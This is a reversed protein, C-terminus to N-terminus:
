YNELSNSEESSQRVSKRLFQYSKVKIMLVIIVSRFEVIVNYLLQEQVTKTPLYICNMHLFYIRTM